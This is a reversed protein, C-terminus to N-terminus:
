MDGTQYRGAVKQAHLFTYGKFVGFECYDGANLIGCEDAYAFSKEVAEPLDRGAPAFGHLTKYYIKGALRNLRFFRLASIINSKISL